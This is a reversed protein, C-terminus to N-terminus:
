QQHAKCAVVQPCAPRGSQQRKIQSLARKLVQM